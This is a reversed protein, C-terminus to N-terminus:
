SAASSENHIRDITTQLLLRIQEWRESLTEQGALESDIKSVKVLMDSVHSNFELLVKILLQDVTAQISEWDDLGDIIRHWKKPSLCLIRLAIETRYCVGNIDLAYKGLFGAAELDDKQKNSFLPLIFQDLSVQDSANEPFIFGYEALLFDNSHMGYSIHIESGKKIPTCTSIHYAKASFSVNCGNSSHNFYDAFPNLAMCDDPTPQKKTKKPDLFYFTRTNVVLWNYLYKEYELEPFAKSVAVWDLSLKKKQNELLAQAAEPLLRQLKMNWLLPMSEAFDEQTPLVKQWCAYTPSTDLSLEAALLGHVTIAGIKSSISKPVTHVTRLAAIPVKVLTEGVKLDKEAVIGLGKGPFRHPAVGNIEVNQTLVWQTFKRHADMD